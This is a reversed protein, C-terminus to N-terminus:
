SIASHSQDSSANIGGTIFIFFATLAQIKKNDDLGYITDSDLNSLPDNWNEPIFIDNMM